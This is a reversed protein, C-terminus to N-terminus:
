SPVLPQVADFSLCLEQGRGLRIDELRVPLGLCIVLLDQLPRVWDNLIEVLPAPDGAVEFACWQNLHLSTDDRSGEVGTLLRVTRGDPLGAEALLSRNTDVIVTPATLESVLIGPPQAWPLLYDFVVQVQSFRDDAALGGRLAFQASWTEEVVDM